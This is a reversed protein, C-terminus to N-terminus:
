ARRWAPSLDDGSGPSEPSQQCHIPQGLVSPVPAKGRRSGSHIVGLRARTRAHSVNQLSTQVLRGGIGIATRCLDNLQAIRKSQTTDNM